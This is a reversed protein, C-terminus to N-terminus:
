LKKRKKRKILFIKLLFNVKNGSDFDLNNKICNKSLVTMAALINSYITNRAQFIEEESKEGEKPHL